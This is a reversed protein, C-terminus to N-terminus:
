DTRILFYDPQKKKRSLSNPTMICLIKKEEEGKEEELM